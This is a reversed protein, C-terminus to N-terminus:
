SQEGPPEQANEALIREIEEPSVSYPDTGPQEPNHNGLSSLAFKLDDVAGQWRADGSLNQEVFQVFRQGCDRLQVLCDELPFEGAPGWTGEIRLSKGIPTLIVENPDTFLGVRVTEGAALKPQSWLCLRPIFQELDDRLELPPQEGHTLAVTGALYPLSKLVARDTDPLAGPDRGIEVLHENPFQIFLRTQM